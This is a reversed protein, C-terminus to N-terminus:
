NLRRVKGKSPSSFVPHIVRRINLEAPKKMFEYRSDMLGSRCGEATKHFM